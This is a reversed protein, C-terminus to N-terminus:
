QEEDATDCGCEAALDDAAEAEADTDEISEVEVSPTFDDDVTIIFCNDDGNSSTLGNFSDALNDTFKEVGRKIGAALSEDGMHKKMAWAGVAGLGLAALTKSKHLPFLLSVAGAGLIGAPIKKGDSTVQVSRTAADKLKDYVQDLEIKVDGSEIKSKIQDYSDKGFDKLDAYKEKSFDKFNEYKEKGYDVADDYKEKMRQKAEANEKNKERDIAALTEVIDYDFTELCDKAESFSLGTRAAVEDIKQLNDDAGCREELAAKATQGAGAATQNECFDMEPRNETQNTM